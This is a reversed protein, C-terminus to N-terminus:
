CKSMSHTPHEWCPVLCKHICLNSFWLRQGWPTKLNTPSLCFFMVYYVRVVPVLLKPLKFSLINGGATSFQKPFVKCHLHNQGQPSLLHPFHPQALTPITSLFPFELQLSAFLLSVSPWILKKNGQPLILTRTGQMVPTKHSSAM